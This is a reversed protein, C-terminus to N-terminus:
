KNIKLKLKIYLAKSYEEITKANYLNMIMISHWHTGSGTERSVALIHAPLTKEQIKKEKKKGTLKLEDLSFCLLRAGNSGGRGKPSFHPWLKLPCFRRM